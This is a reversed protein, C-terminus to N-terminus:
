VALPIPQKARLQQQNLLFKADWLAAGADVRRDFHVPDTPSFKAGWRLGLGMAHAAFDKAAPTWKGAIQLASNNVVRGDMLNLDLAHGILHQSRTSPPVIAGSVADGQRRFVQNVLIILGRAAAAGDLARLDPLFAADLVLEGKAVDPHPLRDFGAGTRTAALAAVPQRLLWGTLVAGADILRGLAATTVADLVGDQRAALPEEARREGTPGQLQAGLRLAAQLVALIRQTGGGFAGDPTGVSLGVQALDRQLDAVPNGQVDRRMAGGFRRKLDHDGHRLTLGAYSVAM